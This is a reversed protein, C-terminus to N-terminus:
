KNREILGGNEMMEEEKDIIKLRIDPCMARRCYVPLPLDMSIRKATKKKKCIFYFGITFTILLISAIIAQGARSMSLFGTWLDYSKDMLLKIFTGGALKLLQSAFKMM